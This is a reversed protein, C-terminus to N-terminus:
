LPVGLVQLVTVAVTVAVLFGAAVRLWGRPTMEIVAYMMLAFVLGAAGVDMASYTVGRWAGTM